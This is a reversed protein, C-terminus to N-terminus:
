SSYGTNNFNITKKNEDGIDGITNTNNNVPRYQFYLDNYNLDIKLRERAQNLFKRYAERLKNSLLKNKIGPKVKKLYLLRERKKQTIKFIHFGYSSEVVPSITNVPLSFVVDEMDKPLTGKEFYGMLGGKSAEMSISQKKAIEEFKQPSNKLEGRIKLAIERDEVLIQHLLVETKKRFEDLNNRYYENVEKDPVDIHNYVNFYLFKQVKVAEAHAAQDINERPIKLEGLYEDFDMQHVPIKAKAAFYLIIRHEVFSDFVRSMLRPSLEQDPDEALGPYQVQLYRKFDKNSIKEENIQLIIKNDNPAAAEAVAKEDTEAVQGAPQEKGCNFCFLCLLALLIILIFPLRKM